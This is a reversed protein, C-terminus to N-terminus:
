FYGKKRIDTSTYDVPRNNFITWIPANLQSQSRPQLFCKPSRRTINLRYKAMGLISSTTYRGRRFVAIPIAKVIKHWHQWRHFYQLNDTGALWIFKIKPYHSQLYSLTQQTYYLGKEAELTVIHIRRQLHQPLQSRLNEASKVRKSYARLDKPNKLPNQPAVLWWIDSLGLWKLALKSIYLHGKHAPNFSGGLLGITQYPKLKM